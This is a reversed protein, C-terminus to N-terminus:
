ANTHHAQLHGAAETLMLPHSPIFITSYTHLITCANKNNSYGIYIQDSLKMHVNVTIVYYASM